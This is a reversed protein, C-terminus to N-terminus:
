NLQVQMHQRTCSRISRILPGESFQDQTKPSCICPNLKGVSHLDRLIQSLYWRRRHYGITVRHHNWHSGHLGSSSTPTPYHSNTRIHKAQSTNPAGNSPYKQPRELSDTYIYCGASARGTAFNTIYHQDFVQEEVEIFSIRRKCSKATIGTVTM